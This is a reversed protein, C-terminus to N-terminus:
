NRLSFRSPYAPYATAPRALRARVAALELRDIPRARWEPRSFKEMAEILRSLWATQGNGTRWSQTQRSMAREMAAPKCFSATLLELTVSENWVPWPWFFITCIHDAECLVEAAQGLDGCHSLFGM